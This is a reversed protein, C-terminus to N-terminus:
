KRRVYKKVMMEYAELCVGGEKLLDVMVQPVSAVWVSNIKKKKYFVHEDYILLRFNGKGFLGNNHEIKKQWDLLNDKKIYIDTRSPFLYHNLINEAAYTTLVYELDMDLLFENPSQIFFDFKSMKKGISAWYKLLEEPKMVKTNKIYGLDAINQLFDITWSITCNSLKAVKYKTLSGNPENM